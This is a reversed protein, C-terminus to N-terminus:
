LDVAIRAACGATTARYPSSLETDTGRRSYGVDCGILSNRTPAWRVELAVRGSREDGSENAFVPGGDLRSSVSLHRKAYAGSLGVKIKATAEYDVRAAVISTYQSSDSTGRQSTGLIDSMFFSTESGTDRTLVAQFRTKDTAQWTWSILGTAGEFDRDDLVEFTQRTLSLRANLTSAGSPVWKVGFDLDGREFEDAQFVGGGLDRAQPYRGRSYRPGVSVSVPGLPNWLALAGVSSVRLESSAFAASSEDIWKHSLNLGAVWQAQMGLQVSASAQQNTELNFVRQQPDVVTAYNTLGRRGIYALDWMVPGVTEGTWRLLADAGTHDLDDRQQFKIRSVNLKGQVRQRSITEDFGGFVSLTTYRDDVEQGVPARFVNDDWDYALEAGLRFPTPEAQVARGALCLCILGAARLAPRGHRYSQKM